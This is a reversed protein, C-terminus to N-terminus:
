FSRTINGTRRAGYLENLKQLTLSGVLGTGTRYGAPALIEASYKEQFRKVAIETCPGFNGTLSCDSLSKGPPPYLGEARLAAQLALVDKNGKIGKKLTTKWAYPLLTSDSLNSDFDFYTKLGTYTQHALEHFILNRVNDHAFQPEYIYGYEILLGVGDLSGKAGTAIIDQDETIGQQEQPLTSVAFNKKLRSFISQALERSARSSSFQYEPIYITFGEYDGYRDYWRGGHDNFHIHLTIDIDNENSWKNIGYLKQAIRYPLVHDATPNLKFEGRLLANTIREMLQGRFNLISGEQSAFYNAFVPTYEGNKFDRTTFVKFHGDTALINYIDEALEINLDAERIGYYETGWDVNDHGPVLLIKLNRRAYAGALDTPTITEVPMLAALYTRYTRPLLNVSLVFILGLLFIFVPPSALSFNNKRQRKM